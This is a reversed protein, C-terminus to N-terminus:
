GIGRARRPWHFLASPNEASSGLMDSKILALDSHVAADPCASGLLEDTHAGAPSVDKTLKAKEQLTVSHLEPSKRAGHHGGGAVDEFSV